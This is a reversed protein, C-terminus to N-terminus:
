ATSEAAVSDTTIIKSYSRFFIAILLLIVFASLSSSVWFSQWNRTM